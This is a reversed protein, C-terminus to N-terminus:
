GGWGICGLTVDRLGQYFIYFYASAGDSFRKMKAQVEESVLPDLSQEQLQVRQKYAELATSM